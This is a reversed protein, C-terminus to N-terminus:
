ADPPGPQVGADTAMARETVLRMVAGVALAAGGLMLAAVYALALGEPPDITSAMVLYAITIAVIASGGLGGVVLAVRRGRVMLWLLVCLLVVAAVLAVAVGVLKAACEPGCDDAVQTIGVFLVAFALGTFGLVAGTLLSGVGVLIRGARDLGDPQAESRRDTSDM